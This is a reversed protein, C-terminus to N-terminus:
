ALKGERYLSLKHRYRKWEEPTTERHWLNDGNRWLYCGLYQDVWKFKTKAVHYCRAWWDADALARYNEDFLGVQQHLSRRWMPFHGVGAAEINGAYNGPRGDKSAKIISPWEQNAVSTTMWSPYAFGFGPGAEDLAKVLREYGKPHILDDTNANTIYTGKSNQIIYNWTEYVTIREMLKLYKVQPFKRPIEDDREDPSAANVCWIEMDKLMSSQLLNKIRNEIWDGSNYISVMVTLKPM